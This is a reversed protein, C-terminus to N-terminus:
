LCNFLPTCPITCLLQYFLKVKHLDDLSLFSYLFALASQFTRRYHTSYVVVDEATLSGTGIGLKEGYAAKLIQGTRFFYFQHKSASCMNMMIVCKRLM